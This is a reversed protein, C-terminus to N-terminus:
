RRIFNNGDFKKKEPETPVRSSAQLSIPLPTNSRRIVHTKKQKLEIIYRM